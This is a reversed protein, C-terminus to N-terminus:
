AVTRPPRLVGRSGTVAIAYVSIFVLSTGALGIKDVLWSGLVNTVIMGLYVAAYQMSAVLAMEQSPAQVVVAAQLGFFGLEFFLMFAFYAAFAPAETVAWSASVMFVASVAAMTMPPIRVGTRNLRNYLVAGMLAGASSICQLLGVHGESLGLSHAPLTVRSLTFFGQYVSVFVAFAWFSKRLESSQGLLAKFRPWLKGQSGQQSPSSPTPEAAPLLRAALASLAFLTTTIILAVVPTMANRVVGISAGALGGAIFQATLTLPVTSSVDAASFYRKIAVIRGVRQIGDLTGIALSGVLALSTARPLMGYVVVCTALSLLNALCLLRRPELTSAVRNMQAVLVVPLVMPSYLVAQSLLISGSAKYTYFSLYVYSLTSACIAGLNVAWLLALIGGRPMARIALKEM